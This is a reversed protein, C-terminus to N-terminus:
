EFTTQFNKISKTGSIQCATFFAVIFDNWNEVVQEAHLRLMLDADALSEPYICIDSQKGTPATYVSKLTGDPWVQWGGYVAYPIPIEKKPSKM